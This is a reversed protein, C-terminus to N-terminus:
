ADMTARDCSSLTSVVICRASNLSVTVKRLAKIILLNKRQKLILRKLTQNNKRMQNDMLSPKRQKKM